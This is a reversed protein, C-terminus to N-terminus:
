RPLFLIANKHTTVEPSRETLKQYDMGHTFPLSPFERPLLKDLSIAVRSYVNILQEKATTELSASMPAKM